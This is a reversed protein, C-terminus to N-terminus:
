SGLATDIANGDLTIADTELTGDIDLNNFAWNGTGTYNGSTVLATLAVKSATAIQALQTDLIGAGSSLNSTSLNGNVLTYLTDFNDNHESAIIVEGASFTNPKSVLGM